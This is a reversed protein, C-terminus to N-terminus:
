MGELCKATVCPVNDGALWAVVVTVAVFAALVAVAILLKKRVSMVAGQLNLGVGRPVRQAQFRAADTQERHCSHRFRRAVQHHRRVDCKVGTPTACRRTSRAACATPRCIDLEDEYGDEWASYLEPDREQIFPNSEDRASVADRGARYASRMAPSRQREITTTSM